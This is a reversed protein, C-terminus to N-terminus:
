KAQPEGINLEMKVEARIIAEKRRGTKLEFDSCPNAYNPKPM